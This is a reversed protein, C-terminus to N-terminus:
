EDDGGTRDGDDGAFICAAAHDVAASVEVPDPAATRCAEVAMPCRPAFRCADAPGNPTPVEGEIAPLRQDPPTRGPISELLAETYPHEPEAFLRQTPAREVIEGAYIVNVRDATEEIVGMDHTIFLIALDEERQLDALLDLIQAQITVDLATTPEDCVLLDPDCALAIAIVARQAMGGSFQHPYEGLRRPADPIGVAELLEIARETAADGTLGQHISLAERLQNGVTYVPNLANAPDQFVIAIDGRHAEFGAEVLNEGKFRIAGEEIVGPEDVLGLISRATVSKGSGSEGVLGVTEGAHVDFSIGDVAHITERETYFVTRLDRVALLPEGDRDGPHAGIETRDPADARSM